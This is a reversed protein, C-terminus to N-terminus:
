RDDAADDFRICIPEAVGHNTVEGTVADAGREVVTQDDQMVVLGGDARHHLGPHREGDLRHDVEAREVVLDPVVAPGHDGPVALPGRLELVGQQDGVGADRDERQRSTLPASSTAPVLESAPVDTTSLPRHGSSARRPILTAGNLACFMDLVEATVM